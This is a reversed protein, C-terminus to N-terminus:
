GLQPPPRSFLLFAYYRSCPVRDPVQYHLLSFQKHYLFVKLSSTTVDKTVDKKVERSPHFYFTNNGTSATSCDVFQERAKPNNESTIDKSKNLAYAGMYLLYAAALLILPVQTLFSGFPFM